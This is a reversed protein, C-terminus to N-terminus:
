RGRRPFAKFTPRTAFQPRIPVEEIPISAEPRRGSRRAQENQYRIDQFRPNNYQSWLGEYKMHMWELYAPLNPLTTRGQAVDRHLYSIFGTVQFIAVDESVGAKLAVCDDEEFEGNKRLFSQRFFNREENNLKRVMESKHGNRSPKAEVVLSNDRDTQGTRLSSEEPTAPRAPAPTIVGKVVAPIVPAPVEIEPEGADWNVVRRAITTFAM